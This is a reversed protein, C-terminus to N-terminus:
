IRSSYSFRDLRTWSCPFIFSITGLLQNPHKLPQFRTPHIAIAHPNRGHEFIPLSKENRKAEDDPITCPTLSLAPPYLHCFEPFRYSAFFRPMPCKGKTVTTERMSAQPAPLHPWPCFFICHFPDSQDHPLFDSRAPTSTGHRVTFPPSSIHSSTSQPRSRL